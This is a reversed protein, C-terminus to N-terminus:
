RGISGFTYPVYNSFGGDALDSLIVSNIIKKTDINFEVLKIGDIDRYVYILSSGTVCVHYCYDPMVECGKLLGVTGISNFVFGNVSDFLYFGSSTSVALTDGYSVDTIKGEVELVVENNSLKKISDRYVILVDDSYGFLMKANECVSIEVNDTTNVIKDGSLIYTKDNYRVISKILYDSTYVPIPERTIILDEIEKLYEVQVFGLKNGSAIYVYEDTILLASVGNDLLWKQKTINNSLINNIKVLGGFTGLLTFDDTYKITTISDFKNINEINELRYEVTDRKTVSYLGGVSDYSFDACDSFSQLTYSLTVTDVRLGRRLLTSSFVSTTDIDSIETTEDSGIMYFDYLRFLRILPNAPDSYFSSTMKFVNDALDYYEDLNLIEDYSIDATKTNVYISYDSNISDVTGNKNIDFYLMDGIFNAARNNLYIGFGVYLESEVVDPTGYFLARRYVGNVFVDIHTANVCIAVFAWQNLNVSLELDIVSIVGNQGFLFKLGGNCIAMAYSLSSKTSKSFIPNFEHYSDIRLVFEASFKLVGEEASPIDEFLNNIFYATGDLTGFCTADEIRHKVGNGMGGRFDYAFRSSTEIYNELVKLVRTKLLKLNNESVKFYFKVRSNGVLEGESHYLRCPSIGLFSLIVEADVAILTEYPLRAGALKSVIFRYVESVTYQMDIGIDFLNVSILSESSYQIDVFVDYNLKTTCGTYLIASTYSESYVTAGGWRDDCCDVLKFAVATNSYDDGIVIDEQEDYGFESICQIETNLPDVSMKGLNYYGHLTDNGIYGSADIVYASTGVLEVYTSGDYICSQCAKNRSMFLNGVHEGSIKIVGGIPGSVEGTPPIKILNASLCTGRLEMGLVINGSGITKILKFTSIEYIYLGDYTGVFMYGGDCVVCTVGYAKTYTNYESFTKPDRVNNNDLDLVKASTIFSRSIFVENRIFGDFKYAAYADVGYGGIIIYKQGLTGGTDYDFEDKGYECGDIYIYLGTSSHYTIYIDCWVNVNFLKTCEVFVDANVCRLDVNLRGEVMYVDLVEPIRVLYRKFQLSMPKISIFLTFATLGSEIPNHAFARYGLSTTIGTFRTAQQTTDYEFVLNSSTNSGVTYTRVSSYDYLVRYGFISQEKVVSVYDGNVVHFPGMDVPQCVRVKTSFDIDLLVSPFEFNRFDSSYVRYLRARTKDYFLVYNDIYFLRSINKCYIYRLVTGFKDIIVLRDELLLIFVGNNYLYDVIKYRDLSFGYSTTSYHNHNYLLNNYLSTITSKKLEDGYLVMVTDNYYDLVWVSYDTKYIYLNDNDYVNTYDVPSSISRTCIDYVSAPCPVNSVFLGLSYINASVLTTKVSVTTLNINIQKNENLTFGVLKGNGILFYNCYVYTETDAGNIFYEFDVVCLTNFPIKFPGLETSKSYIYIGAATTKVLMENNDLSRLYITRTTTSGGFSITTNGGAYFVIFSETYIDSEGDGYEITTVPPVAYDIYLVYYGDPLIGSWVQGPVSVESKHLINWKDNWVFFLYNTYATLELVLTITNYSSAPTLSVQTKNSSNLVLSDGLTSTAVFYGDEIFSTVGEFTYLGDKIYFGNNITDIYRSFDGIPMDSVLINDKYIKSSLNTVLNVSEGNMKSFINYNKEIM